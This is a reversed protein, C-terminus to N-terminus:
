FQVDRKISVNAGSVSAGDLPMNINATWDSDKWEFNLSDNPKLTATLSSDDSLTREWEVSIDGSRSITPSIRNNDDIKQSITVEQNDASATLKINTNDLQHQIVVEQEDSSATLEVNTNDNSWAVVVDAKENAINYRPNVTLRAGDMDLGKTAEISEVAFEGGANAVVRLALDADKNDADIELHASNRAQADVEARASM